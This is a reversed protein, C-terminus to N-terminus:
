PLPKNMFSIKCCLSVNYFKTCLNLHTNLHNQLKNKMFNVINFTREDKVFGLIQVDVTKVLKIFKSLKHNLISFSSVKHWLRIVLNLENDKFIIAEYNHVITM